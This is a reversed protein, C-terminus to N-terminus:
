SDPHHDCILPFGQNPQLPKTFAPLGELFKCNWDSVDNNYSWLSDQLVQVIELLVKAEPWDQSAPSTYHYARYQGGNNIEVEYFEPTGLFSNASPPLMSSDPLSLVGLREIKEWLGQWGIVPNPAVQGSSHGDDRFGSWNVGERQILTVASGSYFESMGTPRSWIRIEISEAVINKERLPIWDRDRAAQALWELRREITLERARAADALAESRSMGFTRYFRDEETTASHSQTGYNPVVASLIRALIKFRM